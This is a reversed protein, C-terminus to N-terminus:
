NCYSSTTGSGLLTGQSDYVAVTYHDGTSVACSGITAPGSAGPTFTYSDAGGM